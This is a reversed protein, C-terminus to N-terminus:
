QSILGGTQGPLDGDSQVLPEGDPGLLGLRSALSTGLAPQTQVTLLGSETVAVKFFDVENPTTIQEALTDNLGVPLATALTNGALLTRDELAELIPRCRRRGPPRERRRAGGRGSRLWRVLSMTRTGKGGVRM